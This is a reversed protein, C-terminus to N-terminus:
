QITGDSTFAEALREFLRSVLGMVDEYDWYAAYCEMMTFEPNHTRDIGENRFDKAIEFVRDFGGVILRKLYLEDAIRLYLQAGGLAHHVTTFPRATAGGYLPQLVPTEVELFGEDILTQRLVRIIQARKVFVERVDRNMILDLYRQRYRLEKDQLGHWKEPLPRLSKSLLEVEDVLCSLEGARTRTMRGRVGVFDGVELLKYLEYPESGVVDQRVWVQLRGFQDELHGFGMKGHRRKSMLRGALSVVAEERVLRDARQEIEDLRHSREFGYPYPPTGLEAYRDLKARREQILRHQPDM